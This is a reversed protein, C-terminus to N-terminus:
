DEKSRHGCSCTYTGLYDSYETDSPTLCVPCYGEYLVLYEDSEEYCM